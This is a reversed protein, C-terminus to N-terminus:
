VTTCDWRKIAFVCSSSFSFLCLCGLSLRSPRSKATTQNRVLANTIWALSDYRRPSIHQLRAVVRASEKVANVGRPHLAPLLAFAM